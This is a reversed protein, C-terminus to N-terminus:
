PIQAYSGGNRAALDRLWGDNVSPGVGIVDIEVGGTNRTTVEAVYHFHGM